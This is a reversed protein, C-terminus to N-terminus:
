RRSEDSLRLDKAPMSDWTRLTIFCLTGPQSWHPLRRHVIEFDQQPDFAQLPLELVQRSNNPPEEM